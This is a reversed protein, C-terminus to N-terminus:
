KWTRDPDMGLKRVARERQRAARLRRLRKVLMPDFAMAEPREILEGLLQYYRTASIDFTEKIAQEKAGAYRFWQREFVLLLRERESLEKVTEQPSTESKQGPTPEHAGSDGHVPATDMSEEETLRVIIAGHVRLGTAM